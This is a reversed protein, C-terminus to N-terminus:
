QLGAKDWRDLRWRNAPLPGHDVHAPSRVEQLLRHFYELRASGWALLQGHEAAQAGYVESMGGARTVAAHGSAGIVLLGEHDCRLSTVSAGDLGSITNAASYVLRLNDGARPENEGGLYLMGAGNRWSVWFCDDAQPRSGAPYTVELVDLLGPLSALSQERGSSDATLNAALLNPSYPNYEALALRLAEDVAEDGYRTAATDALAQRVRGRFGTLDTM